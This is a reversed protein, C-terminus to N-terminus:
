IILTNLWAFTCLKHSILLFKDDKQTFHSIKKSFHKATNFNKTCKCGFDNIVRKKLASFNLLM